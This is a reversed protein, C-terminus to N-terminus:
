VQVCINKTKMNRRLAHVESKFLVLEVNVICTTYYLNRQILVGKTLSLIHICIYSNIDFGADHLCNCFTIFFNRMVNTSNCVTM